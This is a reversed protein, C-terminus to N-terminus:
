WAVQCLLSAQELAVSCAAACRRTITASFYAITQLRVRAAVRNEVDGVEVRGAREAAGPLFSHGLRRWIFPRMLKAQATVLRV